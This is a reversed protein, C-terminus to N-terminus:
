RTKRYERAPDGDPRYRGSGAHRDWGNPEPDEAPDWLRAEALARVRSPFDWVDDFAEADPRGIGLRARNYTLPLVGILRGGTEREYLFGPRM